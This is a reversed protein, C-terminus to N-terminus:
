ISRRLYVHRDRAVTNLGDIVAFREGDLRLGALGVDTLDDSAIGFDADHIVELFHLEAVRVHRLEGVETIGETLGVLGFLLKELQGGLHPLQKIMIYGFPEVSGVILILL